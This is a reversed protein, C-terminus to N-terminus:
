LGMAAAQQSVDYAGGPMRGSSARAKPKKVPTYKGKRSTYRTAKRMAGVIGEPTGPIDTLLTKMLGGEKAIQELEDAFAAMKVSELNGNNAGKVYAGKNPYKKKATSKGETTGYGKPSKGLAHSQQTAIAFAKSKDMDPNKALIHEARDHIFAPM